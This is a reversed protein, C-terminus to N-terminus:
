DPIGAALFALHLRESTERRRFPLLLARRAREGPSRVLLHAALRQAEALDGTEVAVAIAARYGELSTQMLALSTRAHRGAAALDGAQFAAIARGANISNDTPDELSLAEARDFDAFPGQLEGAHIGAWGRAVWVFVSDPNLRAARDIMALGADFDHDLLVIMLGAMAQVIVDTPAEQAARRAQGAFHRRSEADAVKGAQLATWPLFAQALAFGPDMDVAQQLLATIAAFDGDHVMRSLARLFLERPGAAAALPRASAAAAASFRIKPELVAAIAAAIDSDLTLLDDASRTLEGAAVQTGRVADVLRHRVRVRGEAVLVAGGVAYGAGLRRAAAAADGGATAASVVALSSFRSLQDAVGASVLDGLVAALVADGAAQFPLVAVAALAGPPLMPVAAGDPAALLAQRAAQAAADEPDLELLRDLWGLRTAADLPHALIAALIAREHRETEHRLAMVFADFGPAGSLECNELAPGRVRRALAELETLPLTEPGAAVARRLALVDIDLGETDLAVSDRDAQLREGVLPRLKTLSWRLAARPDDPVDWLLECLRERRHRRPELALLALLARTKRSAPLPLTQGDRRVRVPGIFDLELVRRDRCIARKTAKIVPM